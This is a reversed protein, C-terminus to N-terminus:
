PKDNSVDYYHMTNGNKVSRFVVTNKGDRECARTFIFDDVVGDLLEIGEFLCVSYDVDNTGDVAIGDKARVTIANTTSNWEFELHTPKVGPSLETTILNKISQYSVTNHVPQNTGFFYSIMYQYRLDTITHMGAAELKGNNGSCDPIFAADLISKESIRVYFNQLM